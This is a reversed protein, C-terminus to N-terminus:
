KHYPHGTVITQSRYIQELLLIRSLLHPWTMKGFSILEDAKSRIEESVGDSPGVVFQIPQSRTEVYHSILTSFNKSTINKGTEDLVFVPLDPKLSASIQRNANDSCGNKPIIELIEPTPSIRKCYESQLNHYPGAKIKGSCILSTKWM